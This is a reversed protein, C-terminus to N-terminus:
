DDDYSIRPRQATSPVRGASGNTDDYDLSDLGVDVKDWTRKRLDPKPKEEGKRHSGNKRKKKRKKPDSSEAEAVAADDLIEGDECDGAEITSPAEQAAELTDPDIGARRLAEM